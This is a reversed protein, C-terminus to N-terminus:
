SRMFKRGEVLENDRILAFATHGSLIAICDYYVITDGEQFLDGIIKYTKNYIDYSDLRHEEMWDDNLFGMTFEFFWDMNKYDELSIETFNRLNGYKETLMDFIKQQNKNKIIIGCHYPSTKTSHNMEFKLKKSKILEEKFIEEGMTFPTKRKIM